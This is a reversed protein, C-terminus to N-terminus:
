FRVISEKINGMTQNRIDRSWIYVDKCFADFFTIFFFLGKIFVLWFSYFIFLFIFKVVYFLFILFFENEFRQKWFEHM